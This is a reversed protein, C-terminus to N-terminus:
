ACATTTPSATNCTSSGPARRFTAPAHETAPWHPPRPRIVHVVEVGTASQRNPSGPPQQHSLRNPHPRHKRRPTPDVARPAGVDPLPALPVTGPQRRRSPRAHPARRYRTAPSSNRRWASSGQSQTLIPSDGPPLPRKRDIRRSCSVIPFWPSRRSRRPRPPPRREVRSGGHSSPPYGPASRGSRCCSARRGPGSIWSTLPRGFRYNPRGEIPRWRLSEGEAVLAEAAYAEAIAMPLHVKGAHFDPRVVLRGRQGRGDHLAWETGDKRPWPERAAGASPRCGGTFSGIRGACPPRSLARGPSWRGARDPMPPMAVHVGAAESALPRSSRRSSKASLRETQSCRVGTSM